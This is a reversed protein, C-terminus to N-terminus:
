YPSWRSRGEKGVRREESRDRQRAVHFGRGALDLLHEEVVDVVQLRRHALVERTARALDLASFLDDVVLELLERCPQARATHNRSDDRQALRELRDTPGLELAELELEGAKRRLRALFRARPQVLDRM